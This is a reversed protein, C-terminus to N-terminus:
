RNCIYKGRKRKFVKKSVLNDLTEKIELETMGCRYGCKYECDGVNDRCQYFMAFELERSKNKLAEKVFCKESNSLRTIAKLNIGTLALMLNAFGQTLTADLLLAFLTITTAKLSIFYNTDMIMLGMCGPPLDSSGSFSTETKITEDEDLYETFTKLSKVFKKADEPSMIGCFQKIVKEENGEVEFHKM